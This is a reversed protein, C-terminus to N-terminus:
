SRVEELVQSFLELGQPTSPELYVILHDLDEQLFGDITEAMENMSGTIAEGPMGSTWGPLCVAIAATKTLSGPDRGHKECARLIDDYAERYAGVNSHDTIWCNWHDAYQTVLRKMRPGGKVVGVLIPPGEPRLGKPILQADQTQYFEGKFSVSEGRLLPKIIQLAEEFRGVRREWTTFGYTDFESIWDGAGVGLILRGGSLEDVTDAMRALLAPNRYGTCTVLTGIEIRSTAVSLASLVTWCEWYAQRSGIWEDPMPLNNYAAYDASDFLLHDYLWLSDYGLEEAQGAFDLLDAGRPTEGDLGYEWHPLM